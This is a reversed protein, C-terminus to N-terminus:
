LEVYIDCGFQSVPVGQEDLIKNWCRGIGTVLRYVFVGNVETARREPARMRGLYNFYSVAIDGECRYMMARDFEYIANRDKAIGICYSYHELAEPEISVVGRAYPRAEVSAVVCFLLAFAIAVARM